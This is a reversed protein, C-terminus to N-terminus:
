GFIENWIADAQQPDQEVEPLSRIFTMWEDKSLGEPLAQQITRVASIIKQRGADKTDADHRYKCDSAYQSNLWEVPVSSGLLATYALFLKKQEANLTSVFKEFLPSAQNVEIFYTDSSVKTNWPYEIDHTRYCGRKQAAKSRGVFGEIRNRLQQRIAAPPEARSKKIDVSWAYDLTNPVDVKVRCLKASQAVRKLGLWGGQFILRGGRYIYFGQDAQLTSGAVGMRNIQAQTLKNQHPLTYATIKIGNSYDDGDPIEIPPSDTSGNASDLFPDKAKLPTGNVKVSLKRLGAEGSLFRHFVLALHENTKKMCEGLTAYLIDKKAGLRDFHKWVVMTGSDQEKLYETLAIANIEDEDLITLTWDATERITNLNWSAGSIKGDKLSIVTLEQCQSFSATKMGLGFRGLDTKERIQDPDKCALQMAKRLEDASMGSGNDLIAFYLEETEGAPSFIQVSSAGAAISNDVIDAVAAQFTYGISRMSNCLAAANPPLQIQVAM